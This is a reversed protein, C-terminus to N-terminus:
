KKADLRKEGGAAVHQKKTLGLEVVHCSEYVAVRARRYAEDCTKGQHNSRRFVNVAIKFASTQLGQRTEEGLIDANVNIGHGGRIQPFPQLTNGNGTPLPTLRISPNRGALQTRRRRKSM